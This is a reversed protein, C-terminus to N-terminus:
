SESLRCYLCDSSLCSIAMKKDTAQALSCSPNAKGINGFIAKLYCPWNECDGVLCLGIVSIVALDEVDSDYM